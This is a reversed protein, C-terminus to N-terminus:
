KEFIFMPYEGKRGCLGPEKEEKNYVWNLIQKGFLGSHIYYRMFPVSLSRWVALKFPPLQESFFKYTHAYFYLRKKPAEGGSIKASLSLIRNKLFVFARFPLLFFNMWQSHKYWDYVVVGKGKNALLRYLERIALVQQEKPIHYITNLSVFGDMVKDKFPMNCMDALIYIGRDGLKKRAESLAQFSFDVCVRYKYGASYQLYDDFQLAGSAADLMYLGNPNLYRAVRNHCKKLYEKSVDRLDEYIVADEYNGEEDTFWGKQNYFDQVLQKNKDVPLENIFDVSRTLALDKLLIVIGNIVPYIYTRNLTILGTEIGKDRLQGNVQWLQGRDADRNIEMIEDSGLVELDQGSIPCKLISIWDSNM